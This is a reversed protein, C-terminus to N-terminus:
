VPYEYGGYWCTGGTRMTADVEQLTDSRETISDDHLAPIGPVLGSEGGELM